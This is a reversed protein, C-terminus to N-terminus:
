GRGWLAGAQMNRTLGDAVITSSNNATSSSDAAAAPGAPGQGWCACGCPAAATADTADAAAGVSSAPAEPWRVARCVAECCVVVSVM